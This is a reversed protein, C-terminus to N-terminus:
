THHLLCAAACRLAAPRLASLVANPTRPQDGDPQNASVGCLRAAHMCRVRGHSVRTLNIATFGQQLVKYNPVSDYENSAHYNVQHHRTPPPSNTSRLPPLQNITAAAAPLPLQQLVMCNM